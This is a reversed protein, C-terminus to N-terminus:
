ERLMGNGESLMEDGVGIPLKGGFGVGSMWKSDTSDRRGGLLSDRVAYNVNRDRQSIECAGFYIQIVDLVASVCGDVQLGRPPMDLRVQIM